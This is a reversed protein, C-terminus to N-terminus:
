NRDAIVNRTEYIGQKLLEFLQDKLPKDLENEVENLLAMADVSQNKHFIKDQLLEQQAKMILSDVELDTVTEKNQELRDVIEIVEAIKEQILKETSITDKYLQVQSVVNVTTIIENKEPYNNLKEPNIQNPKRESEEFKEQINTTANGIQTEEINEPLPIAQENKIEISEKDTDVITDTTNSDTKDNKFYITSIILLGAFSAAIGLWLYNTKKSKQTTELKESIKDWANASPRIERKNLEEKIHQEFKNPGM